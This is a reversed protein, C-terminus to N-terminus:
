KSGGKKSAWPFIAKKSCMVDFAMSSLAKNHALLAIDKLSDACKPHALADDVISQLLWDDKSTIIKIQDISKGAWSAMLAVSLQNLQRQGYIARRKDADIRAPKDLIQQSTYYRVLRETPKNCYAPVQKATQDALESATWGSNTPKM